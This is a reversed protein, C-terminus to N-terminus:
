SRTHTEPWWFSSDSKLLNGETTTRNSPKEACGADFAGALFLLACCPQFRLTEKQWLGSHLLEMGLHVLIFKKVGDPLYLGGCVSGTVTAYELIRM